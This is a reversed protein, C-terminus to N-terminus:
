AGTAFLRFITSTKMVLWLNDVFVVGARWCSRLLAVIRGGVFLVADGRAVVCVADRAIFRVVGRAVARTVVCVVGCALFGVFFLLFLICLSLALLVYMHIFRVFFLLLIIGLHRLIPLTVLLFVILVDSVALGLLVVCM